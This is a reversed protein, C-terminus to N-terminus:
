RRCAKNAMHVLIMLPSSSKIEAFEPDVQFFGLQMSLVKVMKRKDIFSPHRCHYHPSHMYIRQQGYRNNVM